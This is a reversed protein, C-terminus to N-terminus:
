GKRITMHCLVVKESYDNVGPMGREHEQAVTEYGAACSRNTYTPENLISYPPKIANRTIYCNRANIDSDNAMHVM